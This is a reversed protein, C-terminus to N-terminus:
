PEGYGLGYPRSRELGRVEGRLHTLQRTLEGVLHSLQRICKKPDDHPEDKWESSGGAPPLFIQGCNPCRVGPTQEPVLKRRPM